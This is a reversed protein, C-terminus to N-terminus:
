NDLYSEVRETWDIQGNSNFHIQRYMHCMSGSELCSYVRKFSVNYIAHGKDWSEFVFMLLHYIIWSNLLRYVKKASHTQKVFYILRCFSSTWMCVVLESFNMACLLSHFLFLIPLLVKCYILLVIKRFFIRAQNKQNGVLVIINKYIGIELYLTGYIYVKICTYNNLEKFFFGSLLGENCEFLKWTFIYPLSRFLFYRYLTM